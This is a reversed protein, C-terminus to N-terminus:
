DYAHRGTGSVQIGYSTSYIGASWTPIKYFLDLVIQHWGVSVNNDMNAFDLDSSYANSGTLTASTGGSNYAAVGNASVFVLANGSVAMTTLSNSWDALKFNLINRVTNNITLNTRFHYGSAYWGGAVHTVDANMLSRSGVGIGNADAATTFSISNNTYNGEVGVRIEVIYTTNANLEALDEPYELTLWSTFSSTNTKIRYKATDPLDASWYITASNDTINSMFLNVIDPTADCALTSFTGDWGSWRNIALDEARITYHYTAGCTLWALTITRNVNPSVIYSNTDYGYSSTLGYQIDAYWTENSSFTIAMTTQTAVGTSYTVIPATTDVVDCALTSFTRDWRSWRNGAPDEVRIIYHYTTGCTLWALTITQSVDPSVYYGATSNGYSDTLGYQMDAYWTENASFTIAMTTQTAVGTSYTVIPDIIDSAAVKNFSRQLFPWRTGARNKTHVYLIYPTGNSLHSVDITWNFGRIISGDALTLGSGAGDIGTPATLNSPEIFYEVQSIPAQGTNIAQGAISITTSADTPTQLSTNITPTTTDIIFVRGPNSTSVNGLVDRARVTISWTGDALAPLTISYNESKSDFSEDIASVGVGTRTESWDLSYEVSAINTLTDTVRGTFTPTTDNTYMEDPYSRNTLTVAPATNDIIFPSSIVGSYNGAVDTAVLKVLAGSTNIDTPVNWTHSKNNAQATAITTWTEGSNISYFLSVPNSWLNRDYINMENYDPWTITQNWGSRQTSSSPLDIPVMYPVTNDTNLLFWGTYSTNGLTDITRLCLYGGTDYLFNGSYNHDWAISFDVNSTFSDNYSASACGTSTDSFGYRASSVGDIDSLTVRITDTKVPWADPGDNITFTPGATDIYMTGASLNTTMTNTANDKAWSVAFTATGNPLWTVDVTWEWVLYNDGSYGNVHTGSDDPNVVRGTWSISLVITPPISRWMWAWAETFYVAVNLNWSWPNPTTVINAVTPAITDWTLEMTDYGTNGANDTVLLGITYTANATFDNVTINQNAVSDYTWLWLSTDENVRLYSAVWAIDWNVVGTILLWANTIINSWVDVTPKSADWTLTLTNAWTNWSADTALLQITYVGDESASITTGVATPTWFTITGTWSTQSWNYSAIVWTDAVTATQTFLANRTTSGMSTVVPKLTDTVNVTRTVQTAANGITDRANYTVTYSGVHATDVSSVISVHDDIEGERADTVTAWADSYTTWVEVTVPSSGNLTIVPATADWTFTMTDAGTNGFTDTVLLQIVFTGDTDSHITTGQSGTSWFTINGTWSVKSWLYSAIGNTDSSTAYWYGLTGSRAAGGWADVTPVTNDISFVADSTDEAAGLWLDSWAVIMRITYNNGDARPITNWAYSWDNETDQIVISCEARCYYIDVLGNGADNSTWTITNTGRLHEGGNPSTVAISTIAASVSPTIGLLSGLPTQSAVIMLITLGSFLKKFGKKM